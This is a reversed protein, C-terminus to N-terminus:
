DILRCLDDRNRRIYGGIFTRSAEKTEDLCFWEDFAESAETPVPAVAHAPEEPPVIEGREVARNYFTNLITDTLRNLSAVARRRAWPKWRTEKEAIHRIILERKAPWDDREPWEERRPQPNRPDGARERFARDFREFLEPWDLKAIYPHALELASEFNDVFQEFGGNATQGVLDSWMMLVRQAGTLRNHGSHGYINWGDVGTVSTVHIFRDEGTLWWNEPAQAAAEEFEARTMQPRTDLVDNM